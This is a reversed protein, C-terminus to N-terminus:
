GLKQLCEWVGNMNKFRDKIYPDKLWPLNDDESRAIFYTGTAKAAELDNMSDGIFVVEPPKLNHNKLIMSTLETKKRPAGYVDLFYQDLKRSKIIERVEEEPTGSVVFLDYRVQCKELLDEAGEVFQSAIVKNKVLVSFQDSLDKLQEDTLSKKLINKYFYKIKEQRSIGGHLLHYELIEKLHDPYGQFLERFAETKINVSEVVVGDFDFIVVKIM